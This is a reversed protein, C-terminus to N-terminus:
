KLTFLDVATDLKEVQDSSANVFYIARVRYLTGQTDQPDLLQKEVIVSADNVGDIKSKAVIKCGSGKGSGFGGRTIEATIEDDGKRRFGEAFEKCFEYDPEDIKEGVTEIILFIEEPSVAKSNSNKYALVQKQSVDGRVYGKPYYFVYSKDEVKDFETEIQSQSSSQSQQNNIPIAKNSGNLGLLIAGLVVVAIVVGVIVITRSMGKQSYKKKYNRKM